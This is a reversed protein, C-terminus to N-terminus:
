SCVIEVVEELAKFARAGRKSEGDLTVDQAVEDDQVGYLVPEINGQACLPSLQQVGTEM